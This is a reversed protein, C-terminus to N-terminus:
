LHDGASRLSKQVIRRSHRRLVFSVVLLVVGFTSWVVPNGGGALVGLLGIVLAGAGFVLLVIWNRQGPMRWTHRILLHLRSPGRIGCLRLRPVPFSRGRDRPGVNCLVNAARLAPPASTITTALSSCSERDTMSKRCRTSAGTLLARAEHHHVEVINSRGWRQVQVQEGCEVHVNTPRIPSSGMVSPNHALRNLRGQTNGWTAPHARNRLLSEM